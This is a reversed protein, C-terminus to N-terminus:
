GASPLQGRPEGLEVEIGEAQGAPAARRVRLGTGLYLEDNFRVAAACSGGAAGSGSGCAALASAMLAVPLAEAPTKWVTMGAMYLRRLGIYDGCALKCRIFTCPDMGQMM